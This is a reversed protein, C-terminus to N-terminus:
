KKKFLTILEDKSIGKLIMMSILYVVCSIVFVMIIKILDQPNILCIIISIIISAITCKLLFSYDFIIRFYELVYHLVMLFAVSSSILTVLAAGIIGLFPIFIINLLSLIAAIVWAGGMIKTKKKLSLYNSIIGCIGILLSSVSIFPTILYGISAIEPTSIIMLIPKSLLSLVFILPIVALLFYKLSYKIHYNVKELDENDYYKPLTSPLLISFPTYLILIVSGLIYGPSYYGVFATGLIVAIFYRDSSDVAWYSLNSPIIPLGFSLFQKINEFKPMKIGIKPIIIMIMLLFIFLQSILLGSVITTIGRDSLTFYTVIGLSLYAQTVLILSYTRMQGFVRFYDIFFLNLSGFSIILSTIIVVSNNGGFLAISIINSFYTLILTTILSAVIVLILMSYFVEQINEKDKESTLFRVITYPLGLTTFGTILYYTTNVQVWIGYDSVPLNKTLIPILLISSLVVLINAISVLGMRRVFQKYEEM